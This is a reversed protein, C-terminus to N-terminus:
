RRAGGEGDPGEGDPEEGSDDEGSDDAEQEGADAGGAAGVPGAAGGEGELQRSLERVKRKLRAMRKAVEAYDERAALGLVHLVREQAEDLRKRGRQALGVAAAAADRARDSEAVARATRSAVEAGAELLRELLSKRGIM